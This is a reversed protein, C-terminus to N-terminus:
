HDGTTGSKALQRALTVLLPWTVEPHEAIFGKFNWEAMAGVRMDSEARVTATRSHAIEPLVLAIEGFHDGPGLTNQERGNVLVTASGELIVFFAVADSGQTVIEEGAAATLESMDQALRRIARDKLPALFRVKRLADVEVGM